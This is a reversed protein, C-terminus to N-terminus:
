TATSICTVWCVYIYIFDMGCLYEGCELVPFCSDRCYCERHTLQTTFAAALVNLHNLCINEEVSTGQYGWQSNVKLLIDSTNFLCENGPIGIM